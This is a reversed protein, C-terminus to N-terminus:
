ATACIFTPVTTGPAGGVVSVLVANNRQQVLVSGHAYGGDVGPDSGQLSAAMYTSWPISTQRWGNGAGDLPVPITHLM